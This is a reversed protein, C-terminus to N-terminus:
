GDQRCVRSHRGVMSEAQAALSGLKLFLKSVLSPTREVVSIVKVQTDAPWPRYLMVDITADANSSGDTALVIKMAVEKCAHIGLGLVSIEPFKTYEQVPPM